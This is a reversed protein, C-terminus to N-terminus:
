SNHAIIYSFSFFNRNLSLVWGWVWFSFPTMKISAAINCSWPLLVVFKGDSRVTMECVCQTFFDCCFELLYKCIQFWAEVMNLCHKEGHCNWLLRRCNRSFIGMVCRAFKFFNPVLILRTSARTNIEGFKVRSILAPSLLILFFVQSM